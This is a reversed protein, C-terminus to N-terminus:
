TIGGKKGGEKLVKGKKQHSAGGEETAKELFVGGIRLGPYVTLKKYRYVL